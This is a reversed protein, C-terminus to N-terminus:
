RKLPNPTLLVLERGVVGVVVYELGTILLGVSLLVILTAVALSPLALFIIALVISLIGVGVSLGRWAKSFHKAAWGMSIGAVGRFFLALYLLLVLTLVAFGPEAIVIVSLVFALLGLVINSARLWKPLFSGTAGLVIDRTGLFILGISLLLILTLVAIGPYVLVYFGAALSVLGLIIEAARTWNPMKETGLM